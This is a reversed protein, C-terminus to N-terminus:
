RGLRRALDAALVDVNAHVRSKYAAVADRDVRWQTKEPYERGFVDLLLSRFKGSRTADNMEQQEVYAVTEASTLACLLPHLRTSFVHRHKQITQIVRDLSPHDALARDITLPADLTAQTMPFAKILWDGLHSVNSRGRGYIQIDEEYRAYWHELRDLLAALHQAPWANRYQTGFLGITPIREALKNLQDNLLQSFLSNGIGVVLLDPDPGEFEQLPYLRGWSVNCNAPLIDSLLHFGLRDGFNPVEMFTLVHVNRLPAAQPRGHLEFRYMKQLSDVDVDM